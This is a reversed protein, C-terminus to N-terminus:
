ALVSDKVIKKLRVRILRNKLNLNSKVLVRLYNDTYGQWYGKNEKSRGEILVDMNKNLFQKKYSLGCARAIEQLRFIRERIKAPSVKDKFHYSPTGQRPSYPFIHVKLPSIKKIL